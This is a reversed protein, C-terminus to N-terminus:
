DIGRLEALKEATHIMFAPENRRIKRRPEPTLFPCDTELLIRDARVYQATKQAVQANKYTIVGPFSVYYDWDMLRRAEARNGTFCHFVVQADRAGTEDMIKLCDDFAERCHIVIPIELKLALDLQEAFVKRQQQRPSNDYHYDLGIEGIGVASEALEEMQAIYDGSVGKAEHPHVGVTCFVGEQELSLLVGAESDKLDTGITIWRDIGAQRSRELVEAVQGRYDGMVLHTHTDILQM